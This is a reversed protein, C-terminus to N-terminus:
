QGSEEVAYLTISSCNSNKDLQLTSQWFLQPVGHTGICALWGGFASNPDPSTWRLTHDDFFFQQRELMPPKFDANIMVSQM